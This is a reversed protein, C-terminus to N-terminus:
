WLVKKGDSGVNEEFYGGKIIAEKQNMYVYWDNAHLIAKKDDVGGDNDEFFM